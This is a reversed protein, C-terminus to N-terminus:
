VWMRWSKMSLLHNNRTDSEMYGDVLDRLVALDLWDGQVKVVEFGDCDEWITRKFNWGMASDVLHISRTTKNM